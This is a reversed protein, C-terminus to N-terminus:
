GHGPAGFDWTIPTFSPEGSGGVLQKTCFYIGRSSQFHQNSSESHIYLSTM